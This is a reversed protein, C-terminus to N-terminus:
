LHVTEGKLRSFFGIIRMATTPRAKTTPMGYRSSLLVNRGQKRRLSVENDVHFLLLSQRLVELPDRSSLRIRPAASSSRATPRPLHRSDRVFSQYPPMSPPSSKPHLPLHSHCPFRPPSLHLCYSSFLNLLCTETQLLLQEISGREGEPDRLIKSRTSSPFIRERSWKRIHVHGHEELGSSSRRAQGPALGVVTPSRVGGVLMAFCTARM